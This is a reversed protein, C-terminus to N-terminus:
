AQRLGGKHSHAAPYGIKVFFFIETPFEIRAQWVAEMVNSGLFWKGSEPEIAAIMGKKGELSHVKAVVEAAPEQLTPTKM